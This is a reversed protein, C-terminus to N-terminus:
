GAPYPPFVNGHASGTDSWVIDWDGSYKWKGGSRVLTVLFGDYAPPSGHEDVVIYVVAGRPWIRIVRADYIDSPQHIMLMPEQVAAHMLSPLWVATQMAVVAYPALPLALLCLVAVARIVASRRWLRIVLVAAAVAAIYTAVLYLVM